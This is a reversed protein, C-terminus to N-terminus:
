AHGHYEARCRPCQCNETPVQVGRAEDILTLPQTIEMNATCIGFARFADFQARNVFLPVRDPSPM